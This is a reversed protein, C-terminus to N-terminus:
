PELTPGRFQPPAANSNQQFPLWKADRSHTFMQEATPRDIVAVDQVMGQVALILEGSFMALLRAWFPLKVTVMTVRMQIKPHILVPGQGNGTHNM